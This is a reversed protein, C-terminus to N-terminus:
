NIQNEYEEPTMIYVKFYKPLYNITWEILETMQDKKASGKSFEEGPKGVSAMYVMKLFTDCTKKNVMVPIKKDFAEFTYLVNDGRSILQSVMGNYKESDVDGIVGGYWYRLQKTTKPPHQRIITKTYFGPPAQQEFQLFQSKSSESEVFPKGDVKQLYSVIKSTKAM